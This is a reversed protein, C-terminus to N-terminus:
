GHRPALGDTAGWFEPFNVKELDRYISSSSTPACQSGENPVFARGEDQDLHYILAKTM